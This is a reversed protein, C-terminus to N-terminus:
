DMQFTIDTHDQTLTEMRLIGKKGALSPLIKPLRMMKNELQSVDDGFAARIDGFYLTIEGSSHFFIKDAKLEYKTLLKTLEMVSDFVAENKVPLLEGLVMYPFSLGAIQPVGAIDPTRVCEVVYGDKDFYMYSDMYAIYGALAKEYVTILISSPSLVEVNMVDVFPLNGVDKNRYKLSLYLSNDGLTGQMVYDMIEERTYLSNGEVIVNERPVTYTARLWMVAAAAACIVTVLIVTVTIKKKHRYM